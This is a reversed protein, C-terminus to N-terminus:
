NLLLILQFQLCVYNVSSDKVCKEMFIISDPGPELSWKDFLVDIGDNVLRTAFSLVKKEYEKTSCAYSIFVKPNSKKKKM